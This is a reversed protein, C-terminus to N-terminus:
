ERMLINFTTKGTIDVEQTKMGVFSFSLSKTDSPISIAFKGESDSITGTSTGKIFITVGQMPLGKNDLVTGAIQIKTQQQIELVREVPASKIELQKQSKGLVIQRDRITYVNDTGKFLQNLIEDINEDEATINVKRNLDIQQDQYFFIFESQDEIAKLVEKVNSNNLRLSLKLNQAYSNSSFAFASSLLTILLTLRMVLFSKRLCQFIDEKISNFKM